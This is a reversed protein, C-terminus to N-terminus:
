NVFSSFLVVGVYVLKLLMYVANFFLFKWFLPLVGIDIESTEDWNPSASATSITMNTTVKKFNHTESTFSPGAQQPKACCIKDCLQRTDGPFGIITLHRCSSRRWFFQRNVSLLNCIQKSESQKDIIFQTVRVPVQGKGRKTRIIPGM